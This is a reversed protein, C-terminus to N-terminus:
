VSKPLLDNLDINGCDFHGKPCETKGHNGCPKCPLEMRTQVVRSSDSLPGFGFEPITSCFVATAPANMASCLHLPASDNTYNMVAHKILAASQLLTLKGALV